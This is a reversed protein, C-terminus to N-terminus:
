FGTMQGLLKGWFTVAGEGDSIDRSRSTMQVTEKHYPSTVQRTVTAHSRTRYQSMRVRQSESPTMHSCVACQSRLHSMNVQRSEHHSM